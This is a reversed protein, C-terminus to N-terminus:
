PSPRTPDFRKPLDQWCRWYDAQLTPMALAAPTPHFVLRSEFM